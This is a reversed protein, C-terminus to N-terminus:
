IRARDDALHVLDEIPPDEEREGPDHEEGARVDDGHSEAVALEVWEPSRPDAEEPCGHDEPREHSAAM